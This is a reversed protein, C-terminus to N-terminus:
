SQHISAQHRGNGQDKAGRREGCLVRRRGSVEDPAHQILQRRRADGVRGNREIRPADRPEGIARAREREHVEGGANILYARPLDPKRREVRRDLNQRRRGHGVDGQAEAVGHAQRLDCDARLGRAFTRIGAHRVAGHIRRESEHEGLHALVDHAHADEHGVVWVSVTPDVIVHLTIWSVRVPPDLGIGEFAVTPIRRAILNAFHLRTTGLVALGRFEHVQHLELIQGLLRELVVVAEM